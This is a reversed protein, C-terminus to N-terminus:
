GSGRHDDLWEVGETPFSSGVFGDFCSRLPFGMEALFQNPNALSTLTSAGADFSMSHLALLDDCLGLADFNGHGAM